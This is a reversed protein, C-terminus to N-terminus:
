TILVPTFKEFSTTKSEYANVANDNGTTM